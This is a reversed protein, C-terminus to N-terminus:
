SNRRQIENELRDIRRRLDQIERDFAADDADWAPLVPSPRVLSAAPIMAPSVPPAPTRFLLGLVVSILLVAAVAPIWRDRRRPVSPLRGLREQSASRYQESLDRIDEIDTRCGVCDELHERYGEPEDFLEGYADLLKEDQFKTCDM